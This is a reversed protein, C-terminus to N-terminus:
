IASKSMEETKEMQNQKWIRESIKIIKEKLEELGTKKLASIFVADQFKQQAQIIREKSVL